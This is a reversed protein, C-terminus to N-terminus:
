SEPGVAAGDEAAAPGSRAEDEFFREIGDALGRAIKRVSEDSHDSGRDGVEIDVSPISSYSTQTLDMAMTGDGFIKCDNQELGAILADGLRHHSEWASAVPEMSRYSRVDPVRLYYAGKDNESSDYHIAIHCDANENAIVTRAINDLQIDDGDRIMLVDFGKELLLEKVALAVKLTVVPEPTGDLMTTGSSVAVAEIAGAATSGGTVKPTGDPHCLTKVSSGGKTGHGANVCVVKGKAGRRPARYLKAADTHIKSFEAYEWEPDWVIEEETRIEPEELSVKATAIYYEQDEFLVRSWEETYGTRELSEGLYLDAVARADKLPEALLEAQEEAVYVTEEVAEFSDEPEAAPRGKGAASEESGATAEASEGAATGTNEGIATEKYEGATTEASGGAETEMHKGAAMEANEGAVTGMHERDTTEASGRAETETHEGAAMEARGGTETGVPGDACGAATLALVLAALLIKGHALVSREM